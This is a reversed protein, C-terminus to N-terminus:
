PPTSLKRRNELQIVDQQATTATIEDLLWSRFSDLAPAFPNMAPYVLNYQSGPLKFAFPAILSGDALDSDVYPTRGMAFGLGDHAAQLAQARSVVMLSPRAMDEKVNAGIMWQPWEEPIYSSEILPHDRLDQPVTVPGVSQWYAKSCVPFIEERFLCDFRMGRWQKQGYVFAVDAEPLLDVSDRDPELLTIEVNPMAQRFRPLRPLLWLSALSSCIQVALADSRSVGMVQDTANSLDTLITTLRTLYKEGHPSLAIEKHRRVFLRVGLREELSKVQYSVATPTLCLDEAAAKFSLRRGSAEFARVAAFTPLNRVM